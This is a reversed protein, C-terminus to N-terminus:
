ARSCARAIAGAARQLESEVASQSLEHAGPRAIIVVDFRPPILGPAKRFAERLLRKVRNRLVAGGIKRSAVVGLRSPGEEARRELLLLFHRTSARAGVSQIRVFDARKRVRRAKPLGFV